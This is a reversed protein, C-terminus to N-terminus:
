CKAELKGLIRMLPQQRAIGDHLDDSCSRDLIPLGDIEFIPGAEM